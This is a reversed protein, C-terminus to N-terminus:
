GWSPTVINATTVTVTLSNSSVYRWLEPRYDGVPAAITVQMDANPDRLAVVKERLLAYVRKYLPQNGGRKSAAAKEGYEALIAEEIKSQVDSAVYSTSIVASITVVIESRVPTLFKVRYSDDAKLILAKIGEQTATYNAENITNPALPTNPDPETLVSENNEASLVAVFLTNINDVSAGRATEEIFENWVSLFKTNSYHRRVLFEFEGLFVANHDYVSPYKTMDRITAMDPPSQGSDLVVDLALEINSDAPLLLYEFSFPSGPEPAIEGVTRTITFTITSGNVPQVGVIGDYGFRVYINQRDDAEVNFVREDPLTNVYRERYEYDGQSDSVAIGSLYSEDDSEPVEIAYFPASDAVVHTVSETKIQIAEVVSSEGPPVITAIEVRYYNGVSDLLVRGTDVSFASDNNNTVTIRVRGPRAKRIIGRMAADALVTADRAKEFVEAMAIEIQSSLMALMTAQADLQQLIRPDGAQYLAAIAPYNDVTDAIAQQFDLKTLM